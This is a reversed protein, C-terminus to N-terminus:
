VTLPPTHTLQASQTPEMKPQAFTGPPFVPPTAPAPPAKVGPITPDASVMAGVKGTILRAMDAILVGQADSSEPVANVAEGALALIAPSEAHLEAVTLKGSALMHVAIGAATQAADHVAKVQTDSVQMHMRTRMVSVAGDAIYTAAPVAFIAVVQSAMQLFEAPIM